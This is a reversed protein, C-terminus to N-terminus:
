ELKTRIFGLAVVVRNMKVVFRSLRPVTHCTEGAFPRDALLEFIGIQGVAVSDPNSVLVENKSNIIEKIKVIKVAFHDLHLSVSPKQNLKFPSGSVAMMMSLVCYM